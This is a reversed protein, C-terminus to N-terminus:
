KQKQKICSKDIVFTECKTKDPVIHLICKSKEGYLPEICGKENNSEKKLIEHNKEELSLTCRSRFHEYRERVDNYSLGSKKNLMNNVTEHLKYIYLSFSHRSNMHKMTLPLKKFNNHLNMRCKGCPLVNELNLVFNRYNQKDQCTPHVPYNFSISHLVHWMSPGWVSTMIGDNSQFHKRTYIKRMKTKRIKTKRNSTIVDQISTM